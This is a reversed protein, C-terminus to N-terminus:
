QATKIIEGGLLALRDLADSTRIPRKSSGRTISIVNKRTVDRLTSFHPVYKAQGDLTVAFEPRLVTGKVLPFCEFHGSDCAATATRLQERSAAGLLMESHNADAGRTLYLLRFVAHRALFKDLANPAGEKRTIRGSPEVRYRATDVGTGDSNPAVYYLSLPPRLDLDGGYVLQSALASSMPLTLAARQLLAAAKNEPLCRSLSDRFTRFDNLAYMPIRSPDDVPPAKYEIRNEHLSITETTIACRSRPLKRNPPTVLDSTALRQYRYYGGCGSAFLLFPLLLCWGHMSWEEVLRTVAEAM